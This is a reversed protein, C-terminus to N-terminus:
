RRHAPDELVHQVSEVAVDIYDYDVDRCFVVGNHPEGLALVIEGEPYLTRGLNMPDHWPKLQLLSGAKINLLAM